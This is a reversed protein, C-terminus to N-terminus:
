NPLWNYLNEQVVIERPTFFNPKWKVTVTVSYEENLVIEEILTERTFKSATGGSKASYTKNTSNFFLPDCGYATCTKINDPEAPNNNLTDVNCPKSDCKSLINNPIIVRTNRDLNDIMNEDKYNKLYEIVDQALYFAVVQDRALFSAKLSNQAASMPGTVALVLIFIAVITEILTFGGNNNKQLKQNDM